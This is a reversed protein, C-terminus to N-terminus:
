RTRKLGDHGFSSTIDANPRFLCGGSGPELERSHLNVNDRAAILALCLSITHEAGV